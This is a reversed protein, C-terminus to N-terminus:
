IAGNLPLFQVHLLVLVNKRQRAQVSNHRFAWQLSYDPSNPTELEEPLIWRSSRRPSLTNLVNDSESEVRSPVSQELKCMNAALHSQVESKERMNLM